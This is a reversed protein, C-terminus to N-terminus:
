RQHEYVGMRELKEIIAKKIWQPKTMNEAKSCVEIIKLLEDDVFVAIQNSGKKVAYKENYGNKISDYKKIYYDEAERLKSEDDIIELINFEFNNEGYKNFDKQMNKFGRNGRLDSLHAKLRTEVDVSSGIYIKGNIKNKIQYVGMM